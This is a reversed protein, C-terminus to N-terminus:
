GGVGAARDAQGREDAFARLLDHCTYRGPRHETLLHARILEDFAVEVQAKPVGTLRAAAALGIDPGLHGGILRFMGAAGPSLTRYSWWFVSRIDTTPDGGNLADLSDRRDSLEDALAELSTVPNTAARAAVISLALPLGACAAVIDDLARPARAARAAGIRNVLLDRADPPGLPGIHLPHATSTAVLGTMMTRSGVVALCDPAGPLLSRVQDADLANDLVVLVRKGDLLSRYLAVQMDPETPVQEPPIGFADLFGRVVEEPRAAPGAPSFGRLDAYLRGDPFHGAVQHAWHLVLATKGVGATGTIAVVRGGAARVDDLRRLERDRGTLVPVEPPLQAPVPREIRGAVDPPVPVTTTLPQGTAAGAARQCFRDREAGTLGFADALLRVTAPRPAQIRGTELKRISRAGLGAKEALEQQTLAQRQRHARVLQGFM